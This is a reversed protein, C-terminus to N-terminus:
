QRRSSSQDIVDGKEIAERFFHTPPSPNPNGIALFRRAWGRMEFYAENAVGSSEDAIALSAPAHHGALAKMGTSKASVMAKVYSIPCETKNGKEDTIIKRIENQLVILPGGNEVKLPAACTDIFRHIEGWLVDLHAANVSTTVIRTPVSFGRKGEHVFMGYGGTMFFSPVIYGTVFDKGLMNGAVVFTEDNLAVSSVTDMQEKYFRVKPWFQRQFKFPCIPVDNM